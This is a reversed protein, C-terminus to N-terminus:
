GAETRQGPSPTRRSIEAHRAIILHGDVLKYLFALFHMRQSDAAHYEEPEGLDFSSIAEPAYSSLPM